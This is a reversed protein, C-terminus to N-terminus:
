PCRRHLRPSRDRRELLHDRLQGLVLASELAHRDGQRRSRPREQSGHASRAADRKAAHVRFVRKHNVTPEGTKALVRNALATIRRYGYTPREGVLRRILPLLEGDDRKRYPGRPKSARHVKDYLNSRAVGLTNAVTKM